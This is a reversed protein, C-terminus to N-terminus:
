TVENKFIEHSSPLRGLQDVVMYMSIFFVCFMAGGLLVIWKKMTWSIRGLGKESAVVVIHNWFIAQKETVRLPKTQASTDLGERRFVQVVIQLEVCSTSGRFLWIRSKKSSKQEM